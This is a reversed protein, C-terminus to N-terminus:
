HIRDTALSPGEVNLEPMIAMEDFIGVLLEHDAYFPRYSRHSVRM